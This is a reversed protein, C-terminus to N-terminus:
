SLFLKCIGEYVRLQGTTYILLICAKFPITLAFRLGKEAEELCGNGRKGRAETLYRGPHVLLEDRENILYVGGRGGQDM